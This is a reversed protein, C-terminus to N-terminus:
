RGWHGRRDEPGRQGERGNQSDRESLMAASAKEPFFDTGPTIALQVLGVM